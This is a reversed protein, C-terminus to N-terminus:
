ELDLWDKPRDFVVKCVALHEPALIRIEGDLFPVLQTRRRMAAHFENYAFFLDVATDDWWARCQGDRVLAEPDKPEAVGIPRLLEVIQAYDEPAVFVHVDLDVTARPEGYYAFAIAGGFAHPAGGLRLTDGLILAKRPLSRDTVASPRSPWIAAA